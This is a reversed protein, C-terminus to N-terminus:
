GAAPSAPPTGPPTSAPASVSPGPVVPPGPNPQRPIPRTLGPWAILVLSLLTIVVAVALVLLPLALSPAEPDDIREPLHLRKRWRARRVARRRARAERKLEARVKVAEEALEAPDDPIVVEGWEPPLDPLGNGLTGM